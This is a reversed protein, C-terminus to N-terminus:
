KFFLQINTVQHQLVAMDKQMLEILSDKEIEALLYHLLVIQSMISHAYRPLIIVCIAVEQINRRKLRSSCQM